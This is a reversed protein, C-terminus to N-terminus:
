DPNNTAKEANPEPRAERELEDSSHDARDDIRGNTSEPREKHPPQDTTAPAPSVTPPATPAATPPTRELTAHNQDYRGGLVLVRCVRRVRRSLPRTRRRPRRRRTWRISFM